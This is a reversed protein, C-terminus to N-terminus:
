EVAKRRWTDILVSLENCLWREENTMLKKKDHLAGSKAARVIKSLRTEVLVPLLRELRETDEYTRPDISTKDSRLRHLSRNVASYLSPPFEQLRAQEKEMRHRNELKQVSEYVDEPAIRVLGHSRLIEIVWNPLHTKEDTKFPGMAKGGITLEPVDEQFICGRVENLFIERFRQIVDDFDQTTSM